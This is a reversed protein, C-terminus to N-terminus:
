PRSRAASRQRLWGVRRGSRLRGGDNRAGKEREFIVNFLRRQAGAPSTLRRVGHWAPDLNRFLLSRNGLTEAVVVASFDEFEPDFGETQKGGLLLTAGGWGVDWEGVPNFYFIHTGLKEPADTHPSVESGTTGVHWAYRIAAPAEGLFESIFALYSGSSLETLFDQWAQPLETRRAIGPGEGDHYISSELALYYRDHPRQGGSRPIGEHREFLALSPWELSLMRFGTDTLTGEPNWWPYPDRRVATALASPDLVSPNLFRTM